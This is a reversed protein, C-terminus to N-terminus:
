LIQSVYKFGNSLYETTDNVTKFKAEWANLILKNFYQDITCYEINNELAAEIAPRKGNFRGYFCFLLFM